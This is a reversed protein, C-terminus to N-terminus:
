FTIGPYLYLFFYGSPATPVSAMESQCTRNASESSNWFEKFAGYSKGTYWYRQMIARCVHLVVHGTLECWPLSSASGAPCLLFFPLSEGTGIALLQFIRATENGKPVPAPKIRRFFNAWKQTLKNCVRKNKEDVLFDAM